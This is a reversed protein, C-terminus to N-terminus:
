DEEDEMDVENDLISFLQMCLEGGMRMQIEDSLEESVDGDEVLNSIVTCFDDFACKYGYFFDRASKEKIDEEKYGPEETLIQLEGWANVLQEQLPKTEDFDIACRM